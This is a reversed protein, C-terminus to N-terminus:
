IHAYAESEMINSKRKHKNEYGRFYWQNGIREYTGFTFGGNEYNMAEGVQFIEGNKTKYWTAPPLVELMRMAEVETIKRKKDIM